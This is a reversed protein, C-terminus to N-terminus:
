GVLMGGVCGGEEMGWSVGRGGDSGMGGRGEWDVGGCWGDEMEEGGGVGGMGGRGMVEEGVM